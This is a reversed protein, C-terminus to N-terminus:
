VMNGVPWNPEIARSGWGGLKWGEVSIRKGCYDYDRRAVPPPDSVSLGQRPLEDSLSKPSRSDQLLRM